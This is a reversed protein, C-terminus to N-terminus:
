WSQAATVWRHSIGLRHRYETNSVMTLFGLLKFVVSVSLVLM